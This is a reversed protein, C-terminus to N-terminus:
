GGSAGLPYVGQTPADKRGHDFMLEIDRQNVIAPGAVDITAV